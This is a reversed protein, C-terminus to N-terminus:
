WSTTAVTELLELVRHDTGEFLRALELPVAPLAALQEARFPATLDCFEDRTTTPLWLEALTSRPPAGLHLLMDGSAGDHSWFLSPITTKWHTARRILDIWFCVAAGGSAGLPLRLTLLTRPRDVDRYPKVAALMMRLAHAVRAGDSEGYVLAFLDTLPMTNKWEVYTAAAESASPMPPLAVAALRGALDQGGADQVAVVLENALQWFDELVIPLLEPTAALEEAQDAFPAAVILPFNRGAGDHSPVIAGALVAARTGNPRFVFARASGQRYADAFAPGAHVSAWEVNDTLWADFSAFLEGEVGIRLYEDRWPAKGLIGITTSGARTV